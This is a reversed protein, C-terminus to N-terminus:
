SYQKIINNIVSKSKVGSFRYVQQGEKEFIVTPVSQVGSEKASDRNEDVDIDIFQINPNEQKVEEFIPILVRCPQCWKASYKKIILM